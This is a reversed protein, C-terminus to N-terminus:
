DGRQLRARFAGSLSVLDADNTRTAVTDIFRFARMVYEPHSCRNLAGAITRWVTITRSRQAELGVEYEVIRRFLMVQSHISDVNPWSTVLKAYYADAAIEDPDGTCRSWKRLLPPSRFHETSERRVLHGVEHGVIWGVLGARSGWSQDAAFYKQWLGKILGYDIAIVNVTSIFAANNRFMSAVRTQGVEARSSDFVYITLRDASPARNLRWNHDYPTGSLADDLALNLSIPDMPVYTPLIAFDASTLVRGPARALLSAGFLVVPVALALVLRARAMSGAIM